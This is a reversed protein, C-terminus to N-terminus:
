SLLLRYLGCPQRRFGLKVLLRLSSLNDPEPDAIVAQYKEQDRIVTLLRTLLITGLGKGRDAAHAIFYDIGVTGVPEASWIGPPAQDTEYYQCFGIPRGSLTPLFYRVWSAAVLNDSIETLWETPEGFIPLLDPQSLWQQLLPLEHSSLPPLKLDISM